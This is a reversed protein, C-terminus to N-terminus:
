PAHNTDQDCDLEYLRQCAHVRMGNRRIAKKTPIDITSSPEHELVIRTVNTSDQSYQPLQRARKMSREKKQQAQCVTQTAYQLLKVVEIPLESLIAYELASIGDEDELPVSSPSVKILMRVVGYSPPERMSEQGGEFLACTSDCVLHLPTRGGDDGMTCAHPYADSLLQMIPLSAMMGAAIHLPTRHMCDVCRPSEPMLKLLTKVIHPPPNFRVCSHLITMGNLESSQSIVRAFAQFAIPHINIAYEFSQWNESQIIELILSLRQMEVESIKYSSSGKM